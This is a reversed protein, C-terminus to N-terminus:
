LPLLDSIWLAGDVPDKAEMCARAIPLGMGSYDDYVTLVVSMQAETPVGRVVADYLDNGTGTAYDFYRSLVVNLRPDAQDHAGALLSACDAAMGDARLGRYFTLVGSKVRIRDSPLLPAASARLTVTAGTAARAACLGALCDADLDV